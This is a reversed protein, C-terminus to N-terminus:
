GTIRGRATVNVDVGHWYQTRADGFDTEFTQYSQAGKAAGAATITVLSPYGGGGPLLPHSRRLTPGRGRLGVAGRAPQRGCLLEPVVAQLLRSGASVRPLLEQQVSVGFQWDRVSARGLRALIRLISTQRDHWPQRQRLEIWLGGVAGWM